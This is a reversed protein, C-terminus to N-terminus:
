LKSSSSASSFPPFLNSSCLFTPCSSFAFSLILLPSFLEFHHHLFIPSINSFSQCHQKPILCKRSGFLLTCLKVSPFLRRKIEGTPIASLSTTTAMCNITTSIAQNPLGMFCLHQPNCLLSNYPPHTQFATYQIHPHDGDNM